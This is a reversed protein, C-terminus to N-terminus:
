FTLLHSGPLLVPIFSIFNSHKFYRLPKSSRRFAFLFGIRVHHKLPVQKRLTYQIRLMKPAHDECSIREEQAKKEIMQCWNFGYFHWLSANELASKLRVRFNKSKLWRIIRMENAISLISFHETHEAIETSYNPYKWRSEDHHPQWNLTLLNVSSIILFLSQFKTMQCEISVDADHRWGHNQILNLASKIRSDDKFRIRFERNPKQM